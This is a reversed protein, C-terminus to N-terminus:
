VSGLARNPTRASANELEKMTEGADDRRTCARLVSFFFWIRAEVRRRLRASGRAVEKRDKQRGGEWLASSTGRAEGILRTSM